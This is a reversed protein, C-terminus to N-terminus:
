AAAMEIGQSIQQDSYPQQGNEHRIIVRVFQPLHEQLSIVDDAGVGLVSAAHSIYSETDNEHPPAWRNIVSRVSNIGHLRQYNILVRALARIGYVPDTFRCYRGDHPPNDLGRWATGNYEINGPNNNRIGRPQKVTMFVGSSLLILLLIGAAITKTNM